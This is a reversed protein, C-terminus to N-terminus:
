GSVCLRGTSPGPNKGQGGQRGGLFHLGWPEQVLRGWTEASVRGTSMAPWSQGPGGGDCEPVWLM